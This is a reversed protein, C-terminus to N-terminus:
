RGKCRDTNRYRACDDADREQSVMATGIPDFAFELIKLLLHGMKTFFLASTQGPLDILGQPPIQRLKVQREQPSAQFRGLRLLLVVIPQGLGDLLTAFQGAFDAADAISEERWPEFLGTEGRGDILKDLVPPM